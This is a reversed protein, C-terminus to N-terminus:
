IGNYGGTISQEEDKLRLKVEYEVRNVGLWCDIEFGQIRGEKVLPSLAQAICDKVKRPTQAELREKQLLYLTSGLRPDAWWQGQNTGILMQALEVPDDIKEFFPNM